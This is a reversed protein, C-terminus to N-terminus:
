RFVFHEEKMLLKQLDKVTFKGNKERKIHRIDRVLCVIKSNIIAIFKKYVKSDNIEILKKVEKRVDDSNKVYNDRVRVGGGGQIAQRAIQADFDVRLEDRGAHMASYSPHEYGYYDSAMSAGGSMGQGGCKDSIYMNMSELHKETLHNGDYLLMVINALSCVNIILTKLIIIMAPLLDSEATLKCEKLIHTAVKIM